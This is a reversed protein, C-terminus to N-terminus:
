GASGDRAGVPASGNAITSRNGNNGVGIATTGLVLGLVVHVACGRTLRVVPVRSTEVEPVVAIRGTGHSCAGEDEKHRHKGHEKELYLDGLGAPYGTGLKVIEQERKNGRRHFSQVTSVIPKDNFNSSPVLDLTSPAM